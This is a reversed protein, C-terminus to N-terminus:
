YSTGFDYNFCRMTIVSFESNKKLFPALPNASNYYYWQAATLIDEFFQKLFFNASQRLENQHSLEYIRRVCFFQPSINLLFCYLM